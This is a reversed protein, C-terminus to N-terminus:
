FLSVLSDNYNYVMHDLVIIILSIVYKYTDINLCNITKFLAMQLM